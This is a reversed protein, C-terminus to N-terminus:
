VREASLAQLYAAFQQQQEQLLHEAAQLRQMVVCLLTLMLHLTVSYVIMTPVPVRGRLCMCRLRASVPTWALVM